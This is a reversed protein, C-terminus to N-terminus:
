RCFKKSSSTYHLVDSETIGIVTEEFIHSSTQGTPNSSSGINSSLNSHFDSTRYRFSWATRSSQLLYSTLGDDSITRSKWRAESMLVYLDYGVLLNNHSVWGSKEHDLFDSAEMCWPDHEIPIGYFLNLLVQNVITFTLFIYIWINKQAPVIFLVFFKVGTSDWAVHHHHILVALSVHDFTPRSDIDSLDNPASNKVEIIESWCQWSHGIGSFCSFSKLFEVVM